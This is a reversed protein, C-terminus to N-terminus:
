PKVIPGFDALLRANNRLVGLLNLRNKRIALDPDMVLVSQPGNFFQEVAPAAELLAQILLSYDRSQRATAARAALTLAAKYLAQESPQQFQKPEVVQAPDLVDTPLSGQASLRAVRNVSEYLQTLTADRRLSQLFHARNRVEQLDALARATYDADGEGLVANVLDYDINQEDQLLTRLRQVFFDTLNQQLKALADRAKPPAFQDITQVLLQGLDLAFGANWVVNLIGNAARRLAFPDSSGTPLLGLGFIGVLTDLRDAVGVIRGTLGQPLADDASRPLYHEFIGQAVAEPEGSRRAYDSGMIGQLEPFEGVMQTVLDAKCLRATREILRRQDADCGLQTAIWDAIQVIHEVKDAVSGLEEQFTVKSLRPIFDELPVARDETYFFRGDSLRARIVRANGEAILVAKAPDGNAITIFNPKLREPQGPEHLPFYRQHNVMETRIVPAPLELFEPEFQGVIATPWEVLQVVEALLDPLIEVEAAAEAAANQLQALIRKERAEPDALVFVTELTKLYADATPIEVADHASLVRHGRSTRGAQVGGISLPLVQQDSLAVLWRIPRPFKLDGSGWRMFRRGELSTVWTPALESLVETTARGPIKVRLFVFEGKDTKQTYFDAVTAGKSRAFGEAAKTPQGDKFAAQVAPGKVEEQRDPQQIPLGCLLVALRRPTGYFAIQQPELFADRLSQPIRARWQDLADSVFSAPLEETGVELLFTAM